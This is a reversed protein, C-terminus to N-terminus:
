PSSFSECVDRQIFQGCEGSRTPSNLEIGGLEPHDRMWNGLDEPTWEYLRWRSQKEPPLSELFLRGRERTNWVLLVPPGDGAFPLVVPRKSPENFLIYIWSPLHISQM